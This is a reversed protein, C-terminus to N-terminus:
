TLDGDTAVLAKFSSLEVVVVAAAAAAFFFELGIRLLFTGLDNNDGVLAVGDDAGIDDESFSAVVVAVILLRPGGLHYYLM